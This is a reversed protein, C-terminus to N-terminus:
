LHEIHLLLLNLVLEAHVTRLHLFVLDVEDLSNVLHLTYIM